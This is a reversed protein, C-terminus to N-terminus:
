ESHELSKEIAKQVRNEPKRKFIMCVIKDQMKIRKLFKERGRSQHIQDRAIEKLM